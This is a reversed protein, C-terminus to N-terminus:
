LASCACRKELYRGHDDAFGAAESSVHTRIILAGYGLKHAAVFLGHYEVGFFSVGVMMFIGM